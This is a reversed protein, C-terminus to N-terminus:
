DARMAIVPDVQAARRAPLYSAVWAVGLLVVAVAGFTTADAPEVQFLLKALLDTLFYAGALGVAVGAVTLAIGQGLVLRVVRDQTAGLAIRIGLERTRQSVTYSIVGYIGLAALLLALGAFSALLLMYFRPQSVSEAVVQGMTQLDYVPLNVDVENVRERIAKSLAAPDATSRVLFTMDNIPLTGFPVYVAPTANEALSASKVDGVVGVIEGKADYNTKGTEATDHGVGLTIFTGIADGKPFYKTAFTQNVLVAPPVNLSEEQKTYLRGQVLPIGLASFMAPSAPRVDTILNRDGQTEPRGRVEFHTRM